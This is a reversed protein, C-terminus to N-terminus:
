DDRTASENESLSYSGIGEYTTTVRTLLEETVRELHFQISAAGLQFRDVFKQAEAVVERKASEIGPLPVRGYGEHPIPISIEESSGTSFRIEGILRYRIRANRDYDRNLTTNAALKSSM